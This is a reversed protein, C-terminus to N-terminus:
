NVRGRRVGRMAQEAVLKGTSDTRDKFDLWEGMRELQYENFLISLDEFSDIASVHTVRFGSDESAPEGYLNLQLNDGYQFGVHLLDGDVVNGSISLHKGETRANM